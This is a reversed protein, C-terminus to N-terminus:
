TATEWFLSYGLQLGAEYSSLTSRLTTAVKQHGHQTPQVDESFCSRNLLRLATGTSVHIDTLRTLRARRKRGASVRKDKSHRCFTEGIIDATFRTSGQQLRGIWTRTAGDSPRTVHSTYIRTGQSM